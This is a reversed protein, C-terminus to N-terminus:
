TPMTWRGGLDVARGNALPVLDGLPPERSIRMTMAQDIAERLTRTLNGPRLGLGTRGRESGDHLLLGGPQNAREELWDLRRADARAMLRAAAEDNIRDHDTM